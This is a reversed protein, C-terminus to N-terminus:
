STWLPLSATKAKKFNDIAGAFDKAKYAAAAKERYYRATKPLDENTVAGIQMLLATLGVLSLTSRSLNLRSAILKSL